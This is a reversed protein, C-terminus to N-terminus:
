RTAARQRDGVKRAVILLYEYPIELRGDRRGQNWGVVAAMFAADLEALRAPDGALSARIAILPGFTDQFLRVYAAADDAREVYSRRTLELRAVRDGFLTRVYDESGWLVPPQSGSPPPAYPALVAFFAGGTGEPTFNIMGITGGPRCVRVLEDAVARHNSAFMAGLCSTVVDFSDDEFPLAEADGEIWEISLGASAAARRGAVFHEPTLDSAVVTAGARASRLAVNGTGCAVDLVRQGPAIDCADVLACGLDWVTARAFRDYDGMAWMARQRAKADTPALM